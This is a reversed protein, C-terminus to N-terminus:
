QGIDIIILEPNNFLRPVILNYPQYCIGRSVIMTSGKFEYKGGAFPPNIGKHGIIGNSLRPVRIIGGHEHGCLVLDFGCRLYSKAYNPFHATLIRFCSKHSIRNIYMLQTEESGECLKEGNYAGCLEITNGRVNVSEIRNELMNVGLAKLERLFGETDNVFYEHNGCSFYLSYRESLAKVLKVARHTGTIRDCLDGGLIVFDPSFEELSEVIERGNRGNHFDSIFAIRVRGQIKESPVFYKVNKIRSFAINVVAFVAILLIAIIIIIYFIM